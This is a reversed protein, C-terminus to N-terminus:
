IIMKVAKYKKIRKKASSKNCLTPSFIGKKKLNQAIASGEAM